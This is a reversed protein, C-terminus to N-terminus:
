RELEAAKKWGAWASGWRWDEERACFGAKVPNRRIYRRVKVIEDMDRIVRDFSEPQWFRVGTKGLVGNAERAIRMKWSQLIKSLSWGNMPRVVVHVHNPMVVWEGLEYRKGDFFRLTGCAAEAIQEEKLWCAGVGRDLYLEAVKRREKELDLSGDPGYKQTRMVERVGGELRGAELARLENELEVLVEQPLSDALRFTVFYSAGAKVVHPLYGRSHNVEGQVDV